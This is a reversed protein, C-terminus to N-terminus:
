WFAKNIGFPKRMVRGGRVKVGKRKVKISKAISNRGRLWNERVSNTKTHIKRPALRDNRKELVSVNMLSLQLDKPRESSPLTVIGKKTYKRIPDRTTTDMDDDSDPTPPRVDPLDALLSAPLYGDTMEVDEDDESDDYDDESDSAVVPVLATAAADEEEKRRRKAEREKAQEDLREQRERRKTRARADAEKIAKAQTAEVARSQTRATSLSIAEPAEDDSSEDEQDAAGLEVAKSATPQVPQPEASATKRSRLPMSTSIQTTTTSSTSPDTASTVTTRKRKSDARGM